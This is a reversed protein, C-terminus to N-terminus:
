PNVLSHWIQTGPATEARPLVESVAQAVSEWNADHGCLLGGPQLRAQWRLIERKTAEYTHHGDLFVMDPVPLTSIDLEEHKSKVPVVKKAQILDGMNEIFGPFVGASVEPEWEGFDRPGKWDDVAWVTGPTNDALARTSRGLFSGLEVIKQRFTAQQALWVLEPETMWGELKRAKELHLDSKAGGPLQLLHEHYNGKYAKSGIHQFDIDPYVWCRGGIDRWRQCFAFDEGRFRRGYVGMSFLDYAAQLTGSDVWVVSDEYKLEPYSVMMKEFVSRKIRMFGGPLFDAEILGERGLPVGDETKIQVPFGGEARKLPYVGAVVEEPRELMKVVAESDFGVDSDIFFLDTAEADAMFMATLTNRAVSIMPCNALIFLEHPIGKLDLIRQAQM